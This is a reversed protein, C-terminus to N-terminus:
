SYKEGTTIKYHTYYIYVIDQCSSIAQPYSHISTSHGSMPTATCSTQKTRTYVRIHEPIQIQTILLQLYNTFVWHYLNYNYICRAPSQRHDGVSSTFVDFINYTGPPPSLCGPRHNNLGTCPHLSRCNCPAIPHAYTPFLKSIDSNPFLSLLKTTDDTTSM